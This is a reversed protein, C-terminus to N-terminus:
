ILIIRRFFIVGVRDRKNILLNVYPFEGESLNQGYVFTEDNNFKSNNTTGDIYKSNFITSSMVVNTNVIDNSYLYESLFGLEYISPIYYDIFGKRAFSNLTKSLTTSVGSFTSNDGYTNYYGDWLSTNFNLDQEDPDLFSTSHQDLDAIIAWQSFTGGINDATFKQSKTEEFKINGRVVSSSGNLPGPKYIGIYVGGQFEMGSTLGIAEFATLGMKASEYYSGSRVPNSPKYASSCFQTESNIPAVWYGNCDFKNCLRCDYEWDNNKILEYCPGIM